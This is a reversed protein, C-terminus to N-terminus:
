QNKLREKILFFFDLWGHRCVAMKVEYFHGVLWGPHPMGRSTQAVAPNKRFELFSCKIYL